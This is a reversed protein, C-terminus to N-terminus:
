LRCRRGSSIRHFRENKMICNLDCKNCRQAWSCKRYACRTSDKDTHTSGFVFIALIARVWFLHIMQLTVSPPEVDVHGVPACHECATFPLARQGIATMPSQLSHMSREALRWNKWFLVIRISCMMKRQQMGNYAVNRRLWFKIKSIGVARHSITKSLNVINRNAHLNAAIRMILILFGFVSTDFSSRLCEM